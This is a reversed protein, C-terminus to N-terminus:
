AHRSTETVLGRGNCNPCVLDYPKGTRTPKDGAIFGKGRCRECRRRAM